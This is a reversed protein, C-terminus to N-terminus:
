SITLRGAPDLVATEGQVRIFCGSIVKAQHLGQAIDVAGQLAALRPGAALRGVRWTVPTQGLDSDPDLHAAPRRLVAPSDARAGSAIWTAAADSTAADSAWVSVLDAVGTSLSRGQWGSSAVGGVRDSGRLALVAALPRPENRPEGGTRAPEALGVRAEQGEGLRLAIDGGNNVIVRDAGLSAACDAAEDAGAGAVAALPTLAPDVTRAASLARGVVLPLKRGPDLEGARRKLYKQFDALAALNHLSIRAAQAAMVPAPRGHAWASITMTMPGWDVLVLEPSLVQVPEM